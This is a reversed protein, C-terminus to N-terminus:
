YRKASPDPVVMADPWVLNNGVLVVIDKRKFKANQFLRVFNLSIENNPCEPKPQTGFENQAELYNFSNGSQPCTNKRKKSLKRIIM